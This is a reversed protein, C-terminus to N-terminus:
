LEVTHLIKQRMFCDPATVMANFAGLQATLGVKRHKIISFAHTQLFFRSINSLNVVIFRHYKPPVLVLHQCIPLQITIVSNM